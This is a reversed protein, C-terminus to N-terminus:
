EEHTSRNHKKLWKIREIRKIHQVEMENLKKQNAFSEKSEMKFSIAVLLVGLFGLGIAWYMDIIEMGWLYTLAGGILGFGIYRATEKM